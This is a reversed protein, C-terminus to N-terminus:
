NIWICNFLQPSPISTHRWYQRIMRTPSLKHKNPSQYIQQSYPTHYLALSAGKLYLSTYEEQYRVQYMNSAPAGTKVQSLLSPHWVKDFAQSIDIFTATCFRKNNFDEHIQHVLRHAQEMTGHQPRFGFQHDHILQKATLIPTM